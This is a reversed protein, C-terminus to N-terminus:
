TNRHRRSDDDIDASFDASEIAQVSAPNKRVANGSELWLVASAKEVTRIINGCLSHQGVGSLEHGGQVRLERKFRALSPRSSLCSIMM